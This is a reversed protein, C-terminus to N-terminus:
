KKFLHQCRTAMADNKSFRIMKELKMIIQAPRWFHYKASVYHELQWGDDM